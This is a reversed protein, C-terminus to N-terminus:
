KNLKQAKANQPVIELFPDIEEGTTTSCFIEKTTEITETKGEEIEEVDKVLDPGLDTFELGGGADPFPQKMYGYDSLMNTDNYILDSVYSVEGTEVKVVRRYNKKDQM